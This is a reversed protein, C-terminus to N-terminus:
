HSGAFQLNAVYADYMKTYDSSVRLLWQQREKNPDIKAIEKSLVIIMRLAQAQSIILRKSFKPSRELLLKTSDEKMAEQLDTGFGDTEPLREIAPELARYRGLEELTNAAAKSVQAMISLVREPPADLTVRKFLGLKEVAAEDELTSRMLGYGTLLDNRLQAPARPIPTPKESYAVFGGIAAGAVLSVLAIAAIRLKNNGVAQKV